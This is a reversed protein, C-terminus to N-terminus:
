PLKCSVGTPSCRSAPCSSRSTPRTAQRPRLGQALSAKDVEFRIFDESDFTVISLMKAPQAWPLACSMSGPKRPPIRSRGANVQKNRPCHPM